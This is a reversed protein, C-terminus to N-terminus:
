LGMCGLPQISDNRCGVRDASSATCDTPVESCNPRYRVAVFGKAVTRCRGESQMCAMPIVQICDKASGDTGRLLVSSDSSLRQTSADNDEGRSQINIGM